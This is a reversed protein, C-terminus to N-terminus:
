RIVNIIRQKIGNITIDIRIIKDGFIFNKVNDAWEIFVIDKSSVNLYEELGLEVVEEDSEIRYMDFHLINFKDTKYSKMINFTPSVIDDGIGWHKLIYKVLTTKGAGLDGSLLVLEGGKLSKAFNIAFNKTDILSNIVFKEEM